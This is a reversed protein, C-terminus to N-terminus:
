SRAPEPWEDRAGASKSFRDKGAALTTFGRCGATPSSDPPPPPPPARGRGGVLTCASVDIGVSVADMVKTM